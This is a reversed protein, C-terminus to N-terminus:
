FGHLEREGGHGEIATKDEVALRTGDLDQPEAVGVGVAIDPDIEGLFFDDDAAVGQM